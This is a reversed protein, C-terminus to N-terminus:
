QEREVGRPPTKAEKKVSEDRLGEFATKQEPALLTEFAASVGPEGPALGPVVPTPTADSTTQRPYPLRNDCVRM